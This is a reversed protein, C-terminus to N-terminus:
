TLSINSHTKNQFEIGIFTLQMKLQTKMHIHTRAHTYVHTRTHQIAHVLKLKNKGTMLGIVFNIFM